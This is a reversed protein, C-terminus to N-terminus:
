DRSPFIGNLAISYNVGLTPQLINFSQNGGPSTLTATGSISVGALAVTSGSDAPAYIKEPEDRANDGPITKALIYGNQPTETTGGATTASLTGTLNTLTASLSHEPLQSVALTHNEAGHIEGVEWSFQSGPHRGQGVATRGRLDPLAFTTRGDGGYQTGLLSFLAANSAIPLLQGDCKHWGRPNFNFGFPQIQGIFCEM